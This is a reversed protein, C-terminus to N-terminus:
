RTEGGADPAAFRRVFAVMHWVKEETWGHDSDPGFAPMACGEGGGVLIQYFLQGDSRTALFPADTFDTPPVKQGASEEGGGDGSLGHCRACKAKFQKAYYKIERADLSEPNERHAIELPVDDRAGSTAACALVLAFASGVVATNLVSRSM